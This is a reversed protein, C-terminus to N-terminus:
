TTTTPPSSLTATLCRTLPRSPQSTFCSSATHPTLFFLPKEAQLDTHKEIYTGGSSVARTAGSLYTGSACKFHAGNCQNGSLTDGAALATQITAEYEDFVAREDASVMGLYWLLSGYNKFQDPPSMAGDGISIGALPIVGDSGADPNRTYITYAAAPIYKGAYSEGTIYFEDDRKAPFLQYFQSLAAYVDAGVEVENTVYCAEDPSFSYGVGCPNDFFLLDYHQNWNTTADRGVVAGNEDITFPGIETFMGYLSSGGPGGQLWLLVPADPNKDLAPLYWFFTNAEPSAGEREATFRFFGSHQAPGDWGPLEVRTANQGKVFDDPLYDTAFVPPLLDDRGGGEYQKLNNAKFKKKLDGLLAAGPALALAAVLFNAATKLM